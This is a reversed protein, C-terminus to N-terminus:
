SPVEIEDRSMPPYRWTNPAGDSDHEVSQNHYMSTPGFTVLHVRGPWLGEDLVCTILGPYEDVLATGAETHGRYATFLVVRGLTPKQIKVTM